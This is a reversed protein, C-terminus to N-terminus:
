NNPVTEQTEASRASEHGGQDIASIAYSYTHGPEVRADHFAPGVLPQAASIRQWGSGGEQRYVIYGAVDAETDPQWSLDIAPEAGNEAAIAVAVLGTPVAPPFVDRAEVRVPESFEGDLELTKGNAEIRSVRQARYEYTEGFHIDKDLARGTQSGNEVLLNQEVPEPPPALIGQQQPKPTQATLLKRQLRVPVDENNRTWQLVIGAKRVEATIGTVPAPPAGALVVAANSVGASRGNRNKLEVHYSLVRPSGSALNPPLNDTFAGNEGPALLLKGSGVDTCKEAAEKRCIWVSMDHKMVLKDTNKSPTTWTLMVRNGARSAALDTVPEPLNLSPPLPAGPTGCGALVVLLAAAPAVWALRKVSTM